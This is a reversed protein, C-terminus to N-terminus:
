SPTGSGRSFRNEGCIERLNFNGKSGIKRFEGLHFACTVGDEKIEILGDDRPVGLKNEAGVNEALFRGPTEEGQNKECKKGEGFDKSGPAHFADKM